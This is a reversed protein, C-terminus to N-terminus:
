RVPEDFMRKLQSTLGTHDTLLLDGREIRWRFNLQSKDEWDVVLVDGHLQYRGRLARPRAAGDAEAKPVSLAFPRDLRVDVRGDDMIRMTAGLAKWTGVLPSSQGSLMNASNRMNRPTDLRVSTLIRGCQQRFVEFKSLPALGQMELLGFKTAVFIFFGRRAESVQQSPPLQFDQIVGPCGDLTLTRSQGLLEAQNGTLANLRSRMERSIAEPSTEIEAPSMRIHSMWFGTNGLNPRQPLREPTVVLWWQRGLPVEYVNWPVNLTLEVSEGAFLVVRLDSTLPINKRRVEPLKLEHAQPPLLRDGGLPRVPKNSVDSEQAPGPAIEPQSSEPAVSPPFGQPLVGPVETTPLTPLGPLTPGVPAADGGGWLAAAVFLSLLPSSVVVRVPM